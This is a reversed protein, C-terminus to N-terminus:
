TCIDSASRKLTLESCYAEFSAFITCYRDIEEMGTEMEKLHKSKRVSLEDLLSKTHRDIMDKLEQNGKFIEKEAVVIQKLFDEKRKENHNRMLLMEIVYTSMKRAKKEITQRFEEDVTTVDKCDHLKHSEVFCSVCVIKRCEACYYNLLNHSHKPCSKTSILRRTELTMDSGINMIQHHKSLKQFQHVEVCSDCYYDQCELCKVTAKPIQETTGKNRINCMGCIITDSGMQLTKKFELLDEMFFNMPVGKMGDAPIIFEKRCLPCPMKEGPKKQDADGTRNLCEVCFTHICPLMRPDTFASRCISCETIESLHEAAKELAKAM